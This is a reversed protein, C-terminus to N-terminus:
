RIRLPGLRYNEKRSPSQTEAFKKEWGAIKDLDEGTKTAVVVLNRYTSSTNPDARAARELYPKAQQYDGRDILVAGINNLALAYEPKIEIAKKYYDLACDEKEILWCEYGAEFQAEAWQPYVEAARHWFARSSAFTFAYRGALSGFLVVLVGCFVLARRADSKSWRSNLVALIFFTFVSLAPLYLYRDQRVTSLPVLNSVPLLWLVFWGVAFAFHPRTRFSAAAAIILGPIFIYSLFAQWEYLNEQLSYFYLPSLSFPFGLSSLYDWYVRLTLFGTVILSGGPYGKIAEVSGQTYLTAAAAILSGAFFPIKERLCWGRRAICLDYLVLILPLMVTISKSLLGLVFSIWCFILNRSPGSDNRTHRLYFLLSLFIFFGSLLNKRESIWVVSEAQVPHVAYVLAVLLAAMRPVKALTLICFVLFSNATHLLIQTLHYGTADFKWFTYDLSYSVLTLPLYSDFHVHTFIAVLNDLTLNQLYPNRFIYASDDSRVLFDFFLSPGYVLLNTALLILLAPILVKAGHPEQIAPQNEIM